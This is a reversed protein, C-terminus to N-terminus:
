SLISFIKNLKRFHSIMKLCYNLQEDRRIVIKMILFKSNLPAYMYFQINLSPPKSKKKKKKQFNLFALNKKFFIVHIPFMYFFVNYVYSALMCVLVLNLNSHKCRPLQNGLFDRSFLILYRPLSFQISRFFLFFFYLAPIYKLNIM